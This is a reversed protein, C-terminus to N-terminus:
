RSRRAVVRTRSTEQAVHFLRYFHGTLLRAGAATLHDKDRYLVTGNNKLTSCTSPGCLDNEFSVIRTNPATSVAGDQTAITLQLAAAIRERTVSSKCRETLVLIVACASPAAPMAPVPRVLVVQVGARNLRGLIRALSQGWLRAKEATNYTLRGAPSVFGLYSRDITQDDRNAIVVVQPPQRVLASLSRTDFRYCANKGVGSDVIRIDVFACGTLPALTVDYRAQAAAELVPESLQAANSDGLLVIRGLPRAVTWTCQAWGQGTRRDLPTPSECGRTASVYPQEAQQWKRLAVTRALLHNATLLGSCAAIPVVICVAALVLTARGRMRVDRRIPNEVYRYSLWAPVLSLAAAAASVPATPLLAHAFVIVPWHWLYWSYSIDGVWVLPQTSLLGTAPTSGRLGAAILAVAGGTPLLMQWGVYMGTGHVLFATAAILAIGGAGVAAAAARQLTLRVAALALLAGCGFEWARTPTGYFAFRGLAGGSGNHAIALMAGLSVISVVSIVAFATRRGPRLRWSLLLLTPFLVYFQEEVGLTWTHLLPDHTTLADFYGTGLHYLYLNAAFLSAAIGTDAGVVQGDVPSALVGIAAVVALMTALAPLLRRVRRAYFRRLRLSGTSEVERLLLGTIVFGSIVFFVDVGTFGGPVHLGAHYLVVLLVAVGRLGQIDARRSGVERRTLAAAGLALRRRAFCIDSPARRGRRETRVRRARLTRM